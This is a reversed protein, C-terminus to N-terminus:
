KSGTSEIMWKESRKCFAYTSSGVIGNRAHNTFRVRKCPMGDANKHASLVEVKGANGSASNKWERSTPAQTDNLADDMNQMMMAVDQDNFHSVASDKLFRMNQALLVAPLTAGLLLTVLSIRLKQVTM